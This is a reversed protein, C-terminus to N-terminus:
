SNYNLIYQEDFTQSLRYGHESIIEERLACISDLKARMNKTAIINYVVEGPKVM